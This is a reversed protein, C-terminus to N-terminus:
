QNSSGDVPGVSGVSGARVSLGVLDRRRQLYDERTIEGRAYRSNLVELGSSAQTLGSSAQTVADRDSERRFSGPAGFVPRFLLFVGAALLAVVAIMGVTMALGGAAGWGGNWDMM